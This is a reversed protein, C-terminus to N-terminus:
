EAGGVAAVVRGAVQEPSLGRTDIVHAAQEYTAARAAFREAVREDWLPRAGGGVRSALTDLPARLYVTVWAGQLRARSEPDMFAGGGPALVGVPRRCLRRVAAAERARFAPEGDRALQEPIPGFARELEADLDVFPCGLRAALLEGVTSKGAGMFGVLAVPRVATARPHDRFRGATYRTGRRM